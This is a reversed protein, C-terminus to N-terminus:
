RTFRDITSSISDTDPPVRRSVSFATSSFIGTDRRRTDASLFANPSYLVETMYKFALSAAAERETSATLRQACTARSSRPKGYAHPKPTARSFVYLIVGYGLPGRALRRPPPGRM